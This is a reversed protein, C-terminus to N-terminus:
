DGFGMFWSSVFVRLIYFETVGHNLGPKARRLLFLNM